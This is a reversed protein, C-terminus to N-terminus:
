RILMQTVIGGWSFMTTLWWGESSRPWTCTSTAILSANAAARRWISARACRALPLILSWKRFGCFPQRVKPSAVPVTRQQKSRPGWTEGLPSRYKPPVKRGRLPGRQGMKNAAADGLMSLQSRLENAKRDLVENLDERIM